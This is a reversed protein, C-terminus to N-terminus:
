SLEGSQQLSSSLEEKIGPKSTGGGWRLHKIWEEHRLM